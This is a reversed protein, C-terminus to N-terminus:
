ELMFIKVNMELEFYLFKDFNSVDLNGISESVYSWTARNHIIKGGHHFNITFADM